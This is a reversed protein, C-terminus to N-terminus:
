VQRGPVRYTGQFAGFLMHFLMKDHSLMQIKRQFAGFDFVNM